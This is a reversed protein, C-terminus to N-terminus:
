GVFEDKGEIEVESSEQSTGRTTSISEAILKTFNSTFTSFCAVGDVEPEARARLWFTTGAEFDSSAVAQVGGCAPVASSAASVRQIRDVM